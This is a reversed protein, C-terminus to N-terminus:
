FFGCSPEEGAPAAVGVLGAPTFVELRIGDPDAFFVGGSDGGIRHALVGDDRLPVGLERLRAEVARVEGPTGVRFALHHLGPRTTDVAGESQRWLTVVPEGGRGLFAWEREGAPSRVLVELGLVRQYFAQSRDVHTVNLGVHGTTPVPYAASEPM